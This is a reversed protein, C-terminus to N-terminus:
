GDLVAGPTQRLTSERMPRRTERTSAALLVYFHILERYQSSDGSRQGDPIDIGVHDDRLLEQLRDFPRAEALREKVLHPVIRRRAFFDAIKHEVLRLIALRRDQDRAVVE